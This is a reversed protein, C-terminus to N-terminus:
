LLVDADASLTIHADRMRCCLHYISYPLTPETAAAGSSITNKVHLKDIIINKKDRERINVTTTSAFEFSDLGNPAVCCRCLYNCAIGNLHPKGLPPFPTKSKPICIWGANNRVDSSMARCHYIATLDGCNCNLSLKASAGRSVRTCIHELTSEDFLM